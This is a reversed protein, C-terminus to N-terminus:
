ALQRKAMNWFLGEMEMLQEYNGQEIIRGEDMVLIRDCDKITSLRHAIVLRTSRRKKLSECIISQTINDLASTAEDFVMIKPNNAIARAILIRQKQGGSITGGDEMLMTHMGMPMADMDEAFGVEEIVERVRDMSIKSNNITVNEYISGAITQGNQLVVGMKKRLERKDINEIDKDDFFVKGVQPTEFGLLVKLLTSKGSGSPGVVGIYEGPEIKFSVDKLIEPGDESYKFNIHLAEIGGSLDGPVVANDQYEAVTELIPKAKEYIPILRNASIFTEAMKLVAGSFSGFASMFGAFAGFTIQINKYILMYYIALSFFVNMMNNLALIGNTIQEKTLVIKRTHIYDSSWRYLARDESGSLRLKNIGLIFQYMIGAMKNSVEILQKEYKLQVFGVILTVAVTLLVMGIGLWTLALSYKAMRWLYLFSFLTSLVVSVVVDAITNFIMTIGMARTALEGSNYQSYLKTPFNLLRDFVAAQLAYEMRNTARFTAFSKMTSIFFNGVMFCLILIGVQILQTNAGEPIYDDFIKENLIPLILGVLTGILTLFLIRVIDRKWASHIGFLFIDKMNLPKNEFPRYFMTARPVIESSFAKTLPYIKLHVVDYVMYQSPSKPILALPRNDEIAFALIPGNDARYWNAELIVDRVPFKSVRGVDEVTMDDAICKKVDEYSAIEIGESDCILKCADYLANKGEVKQFAGTDKNRSFLGAIGQATKRSMTKTLEERYDRDRTESDIKVEVSTCAARALVQCNEALAQTKNGDAVELLSDQELHVTLTHKMKKFFANLAITDASESDLEEVCTGFAGQVLFGARQEGNDIQTGAFVEGTKLTCMYHMRLNKGSEDFYTFFLNAAGERISYVRDSNKMILQRSNDIHIFKDM